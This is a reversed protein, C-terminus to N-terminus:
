HRVGSASARLQGFARRQASEVHVIRLERIDAALAAAAYYSITVDAAASGVDGPSVYTLVDPHSASVVWGPLTSLSVITGPQGDACDRLIDRAAQRPDASGAPVVVCTGHRFLVWTCEFTIIRNWIPVLNKM